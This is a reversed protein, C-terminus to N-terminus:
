FKTPSYGANEPKSKIAKDTKEPVFTECMTETSTGAEDNQGIGGVEMDESAGGMGGNFNNKVMISPAQCVEGSGWYHCSSVKCRVETM